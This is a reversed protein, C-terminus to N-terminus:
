PAAKVLETYRGQQAGPHCAVCNSPTRVKPWEGSYMDQHMQRFWPSKTLRLQPAPSQPGAKRRAHKDLYGAISSLASSDIGADVDFHKSLDKLLATWTAGDLLEAPFPVHCSGCEDVYIEPLPTRGEIRPEGAVPLGVCWLVVVVICRVPTLAM